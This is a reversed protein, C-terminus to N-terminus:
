APWCRNGIAADVTVRRPRLIERRYQRGAGIGCTKGLRAMNAASRHPSANATAFSLGGTVHAFWGNDYAAFLLGGRLAAKQL